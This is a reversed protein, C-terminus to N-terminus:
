LRTAPDFIYTILRVRIMVVVPHASDLRFCKESRCGCLYHLFQKFEAETCDETEESFFFTACGTTKELFESGFM